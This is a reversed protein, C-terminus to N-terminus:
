WNTDLHACCLAVVVPHVKPAALDDAPMSVPHQPAAAVGTCVSLNHPPLRHLCDPFEAPLTDFLPASHAQFAGNTMPLIAALSEATKLAGDRNADYVCRSTYATATAASTTSLCRTRVLCSTWSPALSQRSAPQASTSNPSGSKM